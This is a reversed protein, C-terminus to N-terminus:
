KHAAVLIKRAPVKCVRPPTLHATVEPKKAPTVSSRTNESSLPYGVFIYKTIKYIMEYKM